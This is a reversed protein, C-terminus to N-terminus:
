LDLLPRQPRQQEMAIDIKLLSTHGLRGPVPVFKNEIPLQAGGVQLADEGGEVAITGIAVGPATHCHRIHDLKAVIRHRLIEETVSKSKFVNIKSFSTNIHTV